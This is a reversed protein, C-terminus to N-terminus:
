KIFYRSVFLKNSLSYYPNLDPFDETVAPTANVCFITSEISLHSFCFTTPSKRSRKRAKLLTEWEIEIFFKFHKYCFFVYNIAFSTYCSLVTFQLYYSQRVSHHTEIKWPHFPTLSDVSKSIQLITSNNTVCLVVKGVRAILTTRSLQVVVREKGRYKM